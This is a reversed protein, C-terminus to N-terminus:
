FYRQNKFIIEVRRNKDRGAVTDNTDVPHSEGYGALALCAPSVDEETVLYNMLHYARALSLSDNSDYQPTHIPVNDTHGDIYIQYASNRIFKGIRALIPKMDEKIEASGPAYLLQHGFVLKFGGKFEEVRLKSGVDQLLNQDTSTIAGENPDEVKSVILTDKLSEDLSNFLAEKPTYIEGYDKFYLIGSSSTYNQFMSKLTLDDMTSMSLLLVFFTLLLTSLDSFTVMWGPTGAEKETAEKRREEPSM